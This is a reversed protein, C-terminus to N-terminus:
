GRNEQLFELLVKSISLEVEGLPQNADVVKVRGPDQKAIQLYTDRVRQKFDLQQQEFRDAASREGARKEGVSVPVDLIITLNPRLTGQVAKELEAIRELPVGRGGGQYAYTADTFRDCLVWKGAELAPEIVEEIHQARAAFMLLLEAYDGFANDDSQLILNRVTEGFETGGPERTKVFVIEEDKLLREVVALNTSKGAGDQGEITIFQGRNLM